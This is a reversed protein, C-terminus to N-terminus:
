IANEQLFFFLTGSDHEYLPSFRYLMKKQKQIQGESQGRKGFFCVAQGGWSSVESGQGHLLMKCIQSQAQVPHTSQASFVM